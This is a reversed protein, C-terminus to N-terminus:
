FGPMADGERLPMARNHDTLQFAPLIPVCGIVILEHYAHEM